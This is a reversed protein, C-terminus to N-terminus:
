QWSSAFVSLFLSHSLCVCLSLLLSLSQARQTLTQSLINQYESLARGPISQSVCFLFTLTIQLMLVMGVTFLFGCAFM